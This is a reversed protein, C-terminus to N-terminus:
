INPPSIVPLKGFRKWLFLSPLIYRKGEGTIYESKGIKQYSSLVNLILTKEKKSAKIFRKENEKIITIKQKRTYLGKPISALM